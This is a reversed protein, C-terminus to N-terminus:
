INKNNNGNILLRRLDKKFDEIGSYYDTKSPIAFFQEGKINDEKFFNGITYNKQSFISMQSTDEDDYKIEVDNGASESKGLVQLTNNNSTYSKKIENFKNELIHFFKNTEIIYKNVNEEKNDIVLNENDEKSKQSNLFTDIIYLKFENLIDKRINLFNLLHTIYTDPSINNMLHSIIDSYKIKNESSQKAFDIKLIKRTSNNKKIYKKEICENILNNQYLFNWEQENNIKLNGLEPHKVIISKKSEDKDKKLKLIEEYKNLISNNEFSTPSFSKDKVKSYIYFKENNANM